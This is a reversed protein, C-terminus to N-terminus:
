DFVTLLVFNSAFHLQLRSSTKEAICLSIRARIYGPYFLSAVLITGFYLFPASSGVKLLTTQAKEARIMASDNAPIM